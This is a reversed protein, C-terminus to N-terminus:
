LTNIISIINVTFIIFFKEAIIELYNLIYFHIFASHEAACSYKIAISKQGM